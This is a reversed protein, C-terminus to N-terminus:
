HREPHPGIILRVPTGDQVDKTQSWIDALFAYNPVLDVPAVNRPEYAGGLLPPIKFGYCQGPALSMGLKVSQDVLPIMLWNNANRPLDMLKAFHNRSDAVRDLRGGTIDLLHVTGKEDLIFVDGFRNVLWITFTDPLIEAWGSLM